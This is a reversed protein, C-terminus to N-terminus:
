THSIWTIIYFSCNSIIESNCHLINKKILAGM